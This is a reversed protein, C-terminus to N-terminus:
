VPPSFSCLSHSPSLPPWTHKPTVQSDTYLTFKRDMLRWRWCELAYRAAVTEKESTTYNREAPTLRRSAYAVPRWEGPQKEVMLVAGVAFDSADTHVAVKDTRGVLALVSAELLLGRLRDFAGQKEADWEFRANKGTMMELPRAVEAYAPIFRRFYNTFGM